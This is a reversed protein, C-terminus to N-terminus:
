NSRRKFSAIWEREIRRNLVRGNVGFFIGSYGIAALAILFPLFSDSTEIAWTSVVALLIAGYFSGMRLADGVTTRATRSKSKGRNRYISKIDKITARPLEACSEPSRREKIPM